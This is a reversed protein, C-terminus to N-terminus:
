ERSPVADSETKYILRDPDNRLDAMLKEMERLTRRADEILASVKSVLDKSKVDQKKFPKM